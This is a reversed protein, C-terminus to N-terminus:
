PRKFQQRYKNPSLGYKKRFLQIFYSTDRFGVDYGIETITRMSIELLHKADELKLANCYEHISAGSKSKFLHSIHSRSRGFHLCLDDLSINAHYENLYHLLQSYEDSRKFAFDRFLKDILVELPALVSDFLASPMSAASLFNEWLEADLIQGSPNPHRFGSVAAFGIVKNDHTLPHIHQLVGAYCTHCFAIHCQCDAIISCQAQMCQKHHQMKVLMCYPNKHTNFRKLELIIDDPLSFFNDEAFHISIAINCDRELFQLYSIISRILTKM